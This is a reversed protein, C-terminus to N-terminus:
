RNKTKKLKLPKKLKHTTYAQKPKNLKLIQRYGSILESEPDLREAKNLFIEAQHYDGNEIHIAALYIHLPASAPNAVIGQEIVAISESPRNNQNYLESLTYYYGIADPELEIARKYGMEAEEFQELKEHTEGVDFWAEASDPQFDVVRQYHTLAEQFQGRETAIEGYHQEVHAEEETNTALANAQLLHDEAEDLYDEAEGARENKEILLEVLSIRTQFSNEVALSAHLSQEALMQYRKAREDDGKEFYKDSLKLQV